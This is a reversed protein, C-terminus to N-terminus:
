AAHTIADLQAYLDHIHQVRPALRADTATGQHALAFAAGGLDTFALNLEHRLQSETRSGTPSDTPDASTRAPRRNTADLHRRFAELVLVHGRESTLDHPERDLRDLPSQTNLLTTM